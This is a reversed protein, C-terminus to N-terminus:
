DTFKYTAVVNELTDSLPPFAYIPVDNLKVCSFHSGNSNLSVEHVETKM